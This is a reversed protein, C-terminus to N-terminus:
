LLALLRRELEQIQAASTLVGLELDFERTEGPEIFQLTGRERELARGQVHCTAPEMGVVYTGEDMMKWETFVPLQEPRFKVYFGLGEGGNVSPNALATVATGDEFPALDHYYCKEQYEHTPAQFGAYLEKQKEAEADRPQASRTASLLKAGDAIVPFGGNIHYLLMLPQTKYGENTVTDRLSFRDEGLKAELRRHLVLNPGFVVTERMRGEAWFVYDDGRWEGGTSLNCAPQNGIRGHIGLAEGQDVSPAGAQTLGCTAVLGGFFGRLWNMGEPDFYAPAVDGTSSRWALSQGRYAANSIDLCRDALVTFELGTGTRFELARSGRETGDELTISRVGGIQSISGVHKLLEEKTYSKGYLRPM